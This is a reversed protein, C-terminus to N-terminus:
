IQQSIGWRDSRFHIFSLAELDSVQGLKSALRIVDRLGRGLGQPIAKASKEEALSAVGELYKETDLSWPASGVDNGGSKYYRDYIEKGVEAIFKGEEKRQQEVEFLGNTILKKMTDDSCAKSVTRFVAGPVAFDVWQTILKDIALRDTADWLQGARSVVEQIER